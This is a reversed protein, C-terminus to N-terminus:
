FNKGALLWARGGPADEPIKLSHRAHNAPAGASEVCHWQTSNHDTPHFHVSITGAPTRKQQRSYPRHLQPPPQLYDPGRKQIPDILITTPCSNAALLQPCPHRAANQSTPSAARTQGPANPLSHHAPFSETDDHLSKGTARQAPRLLILSRLAPEISLDCPALARCSARLARTSCPPPHCLLIINATLQCARTIRPLALNNQRPAHAVIQQVKSLQRVLVFPQVRWAVQWPLLVQRDAFRNHPSRLMQQLSDPLKGRLQPCALYQM